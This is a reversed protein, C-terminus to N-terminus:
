LYTGPRYVDEEEDYFAGDYVQERWLAHADLSESRVVPGHPLEMVYQIPNEPPDAEGDDYVWYALRHLLHALWWRM